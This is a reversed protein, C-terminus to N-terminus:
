SDENKTQEALYNEIWRLAREGQERLASPGLQGKMELPLAEARALWM